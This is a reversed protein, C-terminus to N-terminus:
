DGSEDRSVQLKIIGIIIPARDCQINVRQFYFFCSILFYLAIPILYNCGHISYGYRKRGVIRWEFSPYDNINIITLTLSPM